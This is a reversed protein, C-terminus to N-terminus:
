WNGHLVAGVPGRADALPSVGVRARRPSNEISSAIYIVGAGLVAAGGVGFSLYAWNRSSRADDVLQSHRDIEARSCVGTPCIDSAQENKSQYDLALAVGAVIAGVGAAGVAIAVTRSSNGSSSDAQAPREPQPPQVPEPQPRATAAPTKKQPAKAALPISKSEDALPPVTVSITAPLEPIEIKATWPRKGPATARIEYVGPDVPAATGWSGQEIQKKDRWVTIGDAPTGVTVLLRSVRPALASARERAMRSRDSQALSRAAEATSLFM